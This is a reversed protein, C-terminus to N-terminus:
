QYYLKDAFPMIADPGPLVDCHSKQFDTMNETFIFTQNTFEGYVGGFILYRRYGPKGIQADSHSYNM